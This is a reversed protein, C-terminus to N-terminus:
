GRWLGPTLLVLLTFLELRGLLMGLALFWKAGDPLSGFHGAPGIIPGLGPGINGLAAAAGSVSTIFDLGYASLVLALLLVTVFFLLIFTMVAVPVDEPIPKGNFTMPAVRHPQLLRRLQSRLRILFIQLRFIKIGGSTSGLCGGVFMLLFFVLVAFSGWQNYDATAYGTTTAISTINFSALRLAQDFPHDLAATLWWTMAAVAVVILGFFARVQSEHFVTAVDGRIGRVLLVYPLSSVIMFLIATWELAISQFYGFSADYNAFGGTALTTMAHVVADFGTMGFLRYLVACAITLGIYVAFIALVTQELRPMVKEPRESETHFLQTGGIRLFPLLLIAMVIIGMGGLWQLIARWLLIGDPMRDLGQLVTAGTTTIGAVAEFFADPYNLSLGSFAFPLAAFASTVLWATGTLLFGQRIDLRVRHERFAALLAIAFFLTFAAAALFVRWDPNGELSELAAPIGMAAALVILLWGQVYLVPRFDTM